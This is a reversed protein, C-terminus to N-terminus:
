GGSKGAALLGLAEIRNARLQALIGSHKIRCRDLHAEGFHLDGGPGDLYARADWIRARSTALDGMLRENARLLQALRELPNVAIPPPSSPWDRRARSPTGLIELVPIECLISDANHHSMPDNRNVPLRPRRDDGPGESPRPPKQMDM